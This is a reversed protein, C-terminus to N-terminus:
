EQKKGCKGGGCCKKVEKVEEKVEEKKGCKGGRCCKKVEKVEVEEVEEKKDCKGGGCCKKVEQKLEEVKTEEEKTEEESAGCCSGDEKPGSCVRVNKFSKKQIELKELYEAYRDPINREVIKQHITELQKLCKIGIGYFEYSAPFCVINPHNYFSEEKNTLVLLFDIDNYYKSQDYEDEQIWQYSVFQDSLITQLLIDSLNPKEKSHRIIRCNYKTNGFTYKSFEKKKLPASQILINLENFLYGYSFSNKCITFFNNIDVLPSNQFAIKFYEDLKTYYSHNLLLHNEIQIYSNKHNYGYTVDELMFSMDSFNFIFHYFCYNLVLEEGNYITKLETDLTSTYMHVENENREVKIINAIQTSNNLIIQIGNLNTGSDSSIFDIDLPKTESKHIEILSYKQM